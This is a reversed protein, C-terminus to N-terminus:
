LKTQNPDVHHEEAQNANYAKDMRKARKIKEMFHKSPPASEVGNVKIGQDNALLAARAKLTKEVLTANQGVFKYSQLSDIDSNQRFRKSVGHVKQGIKLPNPNEELKKLGESNVSKSFGYQAALKNSSDQNTFKDFQRVVDVKIELPHSKKKAEIVDKPPKFISMKKFDVYTQTLKEGNIKTDKAHNPNKLSEYIFYDDKQADTIYRGNPSARPTSRVQRVM